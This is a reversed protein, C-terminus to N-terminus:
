TEPRKLMSDLEEGSTAESNWAMVGTELFRQLVELEALSQSVAGEGHSQAKGEMRELLASRLKEGFREGMEERLRRSPIDGLDIELVDLRQVMGTEAIESFIGDAIPLLHERVLDEIGNQFMRRSGFSIEFTAEGISHRDNM